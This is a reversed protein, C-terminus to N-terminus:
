DQVGTRAGSSDHQSALRVTESLFASRGHLEHAKRLVVSSDVALLLQCHASEGAWLESVPQPQSDRARIDGPPCTSMPPRSRRARTWLNVPPFRLYVFWTM